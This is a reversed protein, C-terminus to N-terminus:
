FETVVVGWPTGLCGCEDAMNRYQDAPSPPGEYNNKDLKDYFHDMAQEGLWDDVRDVFDVTAHGGKIMPAVTGRPDSALGYIFLGVGIGEFVSAVKAIVPFTAEVFEAAEAIPTGHLLWEGLTMTGVFMEALGGVGQAGNWVRKAARDNSFPSVAQALSVGAGFGSVFV